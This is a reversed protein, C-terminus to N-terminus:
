LRGCEAINVPILFSSPAGRPAGTPGVIGVEEVTFRDPLHPQPDSPGGADPEPFRFRVPPLRLHSVGLSKKRSREDDPASSSARRTRLYGRHIGAAMAM